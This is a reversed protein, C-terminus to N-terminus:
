NADLVLKDLEDIPYVIDIKNFVFNKSRISKKTVVGTKEDKFEKEMYQIPSFYANIVLNAKEPTQNENWGKMGVTIVLPSRYSHYFINHIDCPKPEQIERFIHFYGIFSEEEFIKM